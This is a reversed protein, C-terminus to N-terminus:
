YILPLIFPTRSRYATWADRFRDELSQEELRARYIALPIFTLATLAMGLVSRLGLALGFAMVIMALYVPHRVIRYPGTTVLRDTVPNVNGRFAAGLHLLSWVFLLFGAVFIGLGLSKAPQHPIDIQDKAMVSAIIAGVGTLAHLLSVLDKTSM